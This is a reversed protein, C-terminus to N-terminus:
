VIFFVISIEKTKATISAAVIDTPHKAASVGDYKFV